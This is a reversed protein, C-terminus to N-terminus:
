KVDKNTPNLFAHRRKLWDKSQEYNLSWTPDGAHKLLWRAEDREAEVSKLQTRLTALESESKKFAARYVDEDTIESKM